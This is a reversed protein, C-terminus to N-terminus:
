VASQNEDMVQLREKEADLLEQRRKEEEKSAVAIAAAAKKSAAVRCAVFCLSNM